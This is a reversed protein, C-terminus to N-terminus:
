GDYYKTFSHADNPLYAREIVTSTATDGDSLGSGDGNSRNPSRMGGYLVKRLADMRTMTAWNLFNGSWQGSCYKDDTISNPEFRKAGDNYVYCKYSDFHGYYDIRHDYTTDTVGDRNLDSFDDYAKKFLLQVKSVALMVFPPVREGVLFPADFLQIMPPSFAAKAEPILIPQWAMALLVAAAVLQRGKSQHRITTRQCTRGNTAYQENM